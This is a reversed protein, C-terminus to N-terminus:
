DAVGPSPQWMAPREPAASHGNSRFSALAEPLSSHFEFLRNVRAIEFYDRVPPQVNILKLDGGKQRLQNLAGLLTGIGYGDITQVDEMDLLLRSHGSLFPEIARTFTQKDHLTLDRSAIRLVAVDHAAEVFILM